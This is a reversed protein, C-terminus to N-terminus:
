RALRTSPAALIWSFPRSAPLAALQEGLPHLFPLRVLLETAGLERARQLAAFVVALAGDHGGKASPRAALRTIEARTQPAFPPGLISATVHGAATARGQADRAILEERLRTPDGVGRQILDQAIGNEIMRVLEQYPPVPPDFRLDGWAARQARADHDLYALDEADSPEVPAVHMTPEPVASVGVIRELTRFGLRDYFRLAENRALVEAAILTRRGVRHQATRAAAMVLAAGVGVGRAEPSVILSRLEAVHPTKAAFGYRDLYIEVQGVVVGHHEAVLHGLKGEFASQPARRGERHAIQGAIQEAYASWVAEDRAAPMGGRMDHDIWLEHHLGVLAHADAADVARVWPRLAEVAM